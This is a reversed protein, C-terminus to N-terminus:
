NVENQMMTKRRNKVLKKLIYFIFYGIMEFAAFTLTGVSKQILISTIKSKSPFFSLIKIDFEKKATFVM